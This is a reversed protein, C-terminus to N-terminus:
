EKEHRKCTSYKAKYWNAQAEPSTDKEWKGTEPNVAGTRSSIEKVTEKMVLDLDYGMQEIHNTSLIILDALADVIEVDDKLRIGRALEDLEEALM